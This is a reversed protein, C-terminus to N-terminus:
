LYNWYDLSKRNYKLQDSQIKWITWRHDIGIPFHNALGGWIEEGRANWANQEKLEEDEQM